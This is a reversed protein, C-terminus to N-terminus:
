EVRQCVSMRIHKLINEANLSKISRSYKTTVGNGNLYFRFHM